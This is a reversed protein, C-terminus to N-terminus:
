DDELGDENKKRRMYDIVEVLKSAQNDIINFEDLIDKTSADLVDSLYEHIPSKVGSEKPYICFGENGSVFTVYGKVLEGLELDKRFKKMLYLAYWLQSPTVGEFELFTPSYGNLILVLNEFLLPNEMFEDSKILAILAMLQETELADHTHFMPNIDEPNIVDLDDIIARYTKLTKLAKKM